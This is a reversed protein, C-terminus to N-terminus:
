VKQNRGQQCHSNNSKWCHSEHRCTNKDKMETRVVCDKLGTRTGCDEMCEQCCDELGTNRKEIWDTCDICNLRICDLEAWGLGIQVLRIYKCCKLGYM